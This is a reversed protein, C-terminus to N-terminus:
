RAVYVVLELPEDHHDTAVQVPVAGLAASETAEIALRWCRDDVPQLSCELGPVACVVEKCVLERSGRIAVTKTAGGRKVYLSDPEMWITQARM